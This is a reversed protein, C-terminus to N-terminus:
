PQVGSCKFAGLDPLPDVSQPFDVAFNCGQGRWTVQLRNAADLGTVYIEGRLGVPFEEAQGVVKAVAGAPLPEGNDLLITFVAGRSRRVPFSLRLGSRLYPIADLQLADIQADM